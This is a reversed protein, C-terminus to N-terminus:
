LCCFFDILIFVCYLHVCNESVAIKPELFIRYGMTDPGHHGEDDILCWVYFTVVTDECFTKAAFSNSIDKGSLQWGDTLGLVTRLSM